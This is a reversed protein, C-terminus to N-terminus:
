TEPRPRMLAFDAGAALGGATYLAVTLVETMRTRAITSRDLGMKPTLILAGIGALVGLAFGASRSRRPMCGVLAFYASNALLDGALTANYLTRGRPPEAGLEEAGRALAQMGLLDVRPPDPLTRRTVEHLINTTLAGVGGAVVSRAFNTM